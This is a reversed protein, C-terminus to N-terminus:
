PATPSYIVGLKDVEHDSRGHFGVIQWGSPATYTTCDSTTSGGALTRGASTTFRTYFIRTHDNHKASCLRVSSLYEGSNLTLSSENGGNGGHSFVASNSLAIEVRDVRSGSRLTLTSVRPNDPILSVDNFATGHPGGWQDSMRRDAPTNYTWDAQVPPHDSLAQGAVNYADERVEYNVADLGVYGNDRFLVKDVIECTASTVLPSCVLADAGPAPVNGYRVLNVWVDTFGHDLLEGMNDGARTYRTNTDGMVIVANGTSNSEIYDALQLINKRRASLDAEEVQAQAHLNYIDVYVGEELRVRALTFGKPTLCDVGNCDNWSVRAWDMYYFRSMSNLGSGFPVGGSTPSRYPHDNCTDYLAAHYNFDEQVNVFSFENVYCGIQETASQRDSEASSLLEPLGAVNYTLTSFEGSAAQTLGPTCTLLSLILHYSLSRNNM